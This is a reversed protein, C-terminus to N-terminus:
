VAGVTGARHSGDLQQLREIATGVHALYRQLATQVSPETLHEPLARLLNLRSEAIWRSVDPESLWRQETMWTRSVMRPWDEIRRPYPNPACLRNKDADEERHAEVFGLLAANFSPSLQRVQQLVIRGPQFIPVGPVDRLGLATCDVHLTDSGTEVEGRELVIRDTEIRRVHGLRVV